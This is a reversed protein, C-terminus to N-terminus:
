PAVGGVAERSIRAIADFDGAAILERTAMWSGSVAFVHPSALYEAANAATVGGSPLYRVGPFPGALARIAATGGLPGAPFLKLRDLGLRIARQVETATAVGPIVEVGLAQAREVVDDALGPSVVFRAGADFVRDVDDPELVTGAGVTFDPVERLAAIADIGAPTRLTIEACRIGGRQLAEALPVARAPDDLVVVPVFREGDLIM